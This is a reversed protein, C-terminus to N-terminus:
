ESIRSHIARTDQMRVYRSHAQGFLTGAQLCLYTLLAQGFLTGAQMCWSFCHACNHACKCAPVRVACVCVCVPMRVCTHTRARGCRLCAGFWQVLGHAVHAASRNGQCRMMWGGDGHRGGERGAGGDGCLVVSGLVTGGWVGWGLGYTVHAPPVLVMLRHLPPM